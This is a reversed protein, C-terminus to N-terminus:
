QSYVVPTYARTLHVHGLHWEHLNLVFAILGNLFLLAFFFNFVRGIVVVLGVFRGHM